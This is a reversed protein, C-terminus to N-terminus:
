GAGENAPVLQEVLRRRRNGRLTGYTWMVPFLAFYIFGPLDGFRRSLAIVVSLVGVAAQCLMAYIQWRTDFRELPTLELEDRRQYAHLYLAM